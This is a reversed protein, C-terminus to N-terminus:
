PDSFKRIEHCYLRGNYSVIISALEEKPVKPFTYFQYDRAHEGFTGISFVFPRACQPVITGDNKLLWVQVAKTYKREKWNKLFGMPVQVSFCASQEQFIAPGARNLQIGQPSVIKASSSNGDM